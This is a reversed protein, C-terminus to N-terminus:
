NLRQQGQAICVYYMDHDGVPLALPGLSPTAMLMWM